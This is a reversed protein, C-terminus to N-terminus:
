YSVIVPESLRKQLIGPDPRIHCRLPRRLLVQLALYLKQPVQKVPELLRVRQETQIQAQRLYSVQEM